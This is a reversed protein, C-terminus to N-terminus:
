HEVPMRVSAAFDREIWARPSERVLSVEADIPAVTQVTFVPSVAFDPFPSDWVSLLRMWSHREVGAAGHDVDQTWGGPSDFPRRFPSSCFVAWQNEVSFVDCFGGGPIRTTQGTPLPVINQQRLSLRISGHVNVTAGQISRYFDRPLALNRGRGSSWRQGSPGEIAADMMELQAVEGRPLGNYAFPIGIVVRDSGPGQSYSVNSLPRVHVSVGEAEAEHFVSSWFADRVPMPLGYYLVGALGLTCLGARISATTARRSFQWGVMLAAGACVATVSVAQSPWQVSMAQYPVV